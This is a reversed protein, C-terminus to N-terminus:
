EIVREIAGTGVLGLLDLRLREGKVSDTLMPGVMVREGGNSAAMTATGFGLARLHDKLQVAATATTAAVQLYIGPSPVSMAAERARLVKQLRVQNYSAIDMVPAPPPNFSSTPVQPVYFTASLDPAYAPADGIPLGLAVPAARPMDVHNHLAAGPVPVGLSPAIQQACALVDVPIFQKINTGAANKLVTVTQPTFTVNAGMISVTIPSPLASAAKTARSLMARASVPVTPTPFQSVFITAEACTGPTVVLSGTVQLVPALNALGSPAAASLIPTVETDIFGHGVALGTLIPKSISIIGGLGASLVGISGDTLVRVGITKWNLGVKQQIIATAASPMISDLGFQAGTQYVLGGPITIATTTQAVAPAAMWASLLALFAFGKLRM